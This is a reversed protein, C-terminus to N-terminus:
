PTDSFWKCDLQIFKSLWLILLHVKSHMCCFTKIIGCLRHISIIVANTNSQHFGCKIRDWFPWNNEIDYDFDFDYNSSEECKKSLLSYFLFFNYFIIHIHTKICLKENIRRYIIGRYKLVRYYQVAISNLRVNLLFQIIDISDTESDWRARQVLM